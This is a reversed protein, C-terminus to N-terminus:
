GQHGPTNRSEESTAQEASPGEYYFVGVGVTKGHSPRSLEGVDQVEHQALWDDMAEIFKIAQDRSWKRFVPIADPDISESFAIRQIFGDSTRSPDANHVIGSTLPYVMASMVTIAKEDVNGPVFFRKVARLKGDEADIVAGARKLEARVAGPPVDGAVARVLGCFGSADDQFDLDRPKGDSDLFRRDFHWAHLVRAPPGFQDAFPGSASVPEMVLSDRVRKVEKRSLGTRVAIRSTNTPRGRTDAETMAERVFARKAVADFQRYTIGSRLLLKAVPLLCAYVANLMRIQINDNM